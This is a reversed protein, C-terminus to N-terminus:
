RKEYEVSEQNCFNTHEDSQDSCDADGDCLWGSYICGEGNKCRFQDAQVFIMTNLISLKLKLLKNLNVSM